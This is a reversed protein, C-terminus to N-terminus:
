GFAVGDKESGFLEYKKIFFISQNSNNSKNLGCIFASLRLNIADSKDIILTLTRGIKEIRKLKKQDSTFESLFQSKKIGGSLHDLYPYDVVSSASIVSNNYNETGETRETTKKEYWFIIFLRMKGLQYQSIGANRLRNLHKEFNKEMSERALM